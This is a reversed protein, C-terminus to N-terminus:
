QKQIQFLFDVKGSTISDYLQVLRLKIYMSLSLGKFRLPNYSNNVYSNVLPIDYKNKLIRTVSDSRFLTAHILDPKEDRYIKELKKAAVKFNRPGPINLSYVKIGAGTLNEKLMDGKYLHVFVPTFNILNQAIEVLSREAGSGQLTDIVYLIKM